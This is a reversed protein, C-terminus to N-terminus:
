LLYINSHHRLDQLAFFHLQNWVTDPPDSSIGMKTLNDHIAVFRNDILYFNRQLLYHYEYNDHIDTEYALSEQMKKISPLVSIFERYSPDKPTGLPAGPQATRSGAGKPHVLIIDTKAGPPPPYQYDTRLNEQENVSDPKIIILNHAYASNLWRRGFGSWKDNRANYGPDILLQKGQYYLQYSSQDDQEHVAPYYSNEHSLILQLGDKYGTFDSIGKQRFVTIEDDSLVEQKFRSPLSSGTIM